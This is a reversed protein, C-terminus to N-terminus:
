TGAPRARWWASGCAPASGGPSRWGAPRGARACRRWSSDAPLDRFQDFGQAVAEAAPTGMSRITRPNQQRRGADRAAGFFMRTREMMPRKRSCERMKWKAAPEFIGRLAVEEDARGVPHVAIKGPADLHDRGDKAWSASVSVTSPGPYKDQPIATLGPHQAIISLYVWNCGSPAVPPGSAWPRVLSQHLEGSALPTFIFLAAIRRLFVICSPIIPRPRIPALM